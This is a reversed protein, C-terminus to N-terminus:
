SVQKPETLQGLQTVIQALKNVIYGCHAKNLAECLTPLNANDYHRQFWVKLVNYVFDAHSTEAPNRMWLEEEPLYDSEELGLYHFFVNRQNPSLNKSLCMFCNTMFQDKEFKRNPINITPTCQDPNLGEDEGISIVEIMEGRVEEDRKGDIEVSGGLTEHSDILKVTSEGEIADTGEDACITIVEIMEGRVKDDKKGDIEVGGDFTEDSNIILKVASEGAIVETGAHSRKCRSAHHRCKFYTIVGIVVLFVAVGVMLYISGVQVSAHASVNIQVNKSFTSFEPINATPSLSQIETVEPKSRLVCMGEASSSIAKFGPLCEGCHGPSSGGCPQSEYRNVASCTKSCRNCVPFSHAERFYRPPCPDCPHCSQFGYRANYQRSLTRNLVFGGGDCTPCEECQGRVEGGVAGPIAVYRTNNPCPTPGGQVVLTTLSLAFPLLYM